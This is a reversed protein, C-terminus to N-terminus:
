SGSGGAGDEVKSSSESGPTASSTKVTDPPKLKLLESKVEVLLRPIEKSKYTAAQSELEQLM